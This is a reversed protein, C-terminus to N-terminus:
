HKMNEVYKRVRSVDLDRILGRANKHRTIYGPDNEALYGRLQDYPDYGKERLAGIIYEITQIFETENM